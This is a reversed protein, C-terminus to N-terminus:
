LLFDGSTLTQGALGQLVIEMDAIGDGNIDAQVLLDAGSNMYRMQAAGTAEFAAAGIFAFGQDGRGSLPPATAGFKPESGFEGWIARTSSCISHRIIKRSAPILLRNSACTM